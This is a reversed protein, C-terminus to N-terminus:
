ARKLRVGRGWAGRARAFTRRGRVGAKLPCVCNTWVWLDTAAHIDLMRFCSNMMGRSMRSQYAVILCCTVCRAYRGIQHLRTSSLQTVVYVRTTPTCKTTGCRSPMVQRM